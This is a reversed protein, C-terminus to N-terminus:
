ESACVCARGGGVCVFWCVFVYVSARTRAFACVCVCM